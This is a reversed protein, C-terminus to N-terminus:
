APFIFGLELPAANTADTQLTTIVHPKEDITRPRVLLDPQGARTLHENLLATTAPSNDYTLLQEVLSRAHALDGAGALAEVDKVTRKILRDRLRQLIEEPNPISKPLPIDMKGVKFSREIESYTRGLLADSYRQAAIFQDYALGALVKRRNDDPPLSDFTALLNPEEKLARNLAAYDSAAEPVKESNFIQQWAQDRRERLAALAEPYNEGLKAIDSLLYSTRVGRFSGVQRMGVDFCWLYERLAEAMEGSRALEQANEYRTTVADDTVPVKLEDNERRLQAVRGRLRLLENSNDPKVRNERAASLQGTLETKESELAQIKEKSSIQQQQLTWVQERLQSTQRAEYIGVGALIAVTTTVITKQLTTMAIAKTATVTATTTLTAGTLTAATTITFALGVPAAQVANASIVAALGGAGVTVGRKALFERLREVARSVRKQAAEDSIGLTQAMERASQRQFYRLMVADRDAETLDGLATDLHPHVARRRAFSCSSNMM